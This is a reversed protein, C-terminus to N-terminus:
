TKPPWMSAHKSSNPECDSEQFLSIEFSEDNKLFIPHLVFPKSIYGYGGFQTPIHGQAAPPSDPGPGTRRRLSNFMEVLDKFLCHSM